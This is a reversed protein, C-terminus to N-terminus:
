NVLPFGAQPGCCFHDTHLVTSVFLSFLLFYFTFNLPFCVCIECLKTSRASNSATNGTYLFIRPCGTINHRLLPSDLEVSSCANLQDAMGRDCCQLILAFHPQLPCAAPLGLSADDIRSLCSDFEAGGTLSM